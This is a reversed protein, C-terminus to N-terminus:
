SLINIKIDAISIDASFRVKLIFTLVLSILHFTDTLKKMKNFPYGNQKLLSKFFNVETDFSLYSSCLKFGRHVLTAILNDKYKDPTFSDFRSLLGTFTPKRYISTSLTSNKRVIKLDLFPLIGNEEKESTFKICDHKSNLYNLFHEVHSEDNFILFTDDVYRKYFDPKFDLPCEQLWKSEMHCMFANALTPGLPSGMAVGDVQNYITDNFLFYNDLTALELLKRFDDMFFHTTSELSDDGFLPCEIPKTPDPFLEEVIIDITEKLPINTFLSVVDFSALFKGSVDLECIEKAFDFSSIATYENKTIPNIIPVLYKAINYASTNCASLIPRLPFNKKHVKPLGYLIGLQSGSVTLKQYTKENLKYPPLMKKLKRLFTNIRDELTFIIKIEEKDLVPKFKTTDSLITNM